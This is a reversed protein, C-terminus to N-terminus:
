LLCFLTESQKCRYLRLYQVLGTTHLALYIFLYVNYLKVVMVKVYLFVVPKNITLNNIRFMKSSEVRRIVSTYYKRTMTHKYLYTCMHITFARGEKQELYM